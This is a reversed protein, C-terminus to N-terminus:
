PSIIKLKHLNNIAGDIAWSFFAGTHIEKKSNQELNGLLLLISNQIFKEYFNNTALLNCDKFM